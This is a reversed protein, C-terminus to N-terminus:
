RRLPPLLRLRRGVAGQVAHELHEWWWWDTNTNSGETQHASIAAGFLFDDPFRDPDGM